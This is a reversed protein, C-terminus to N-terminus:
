FRTSGLGSMFPELATQSVAVYAADHLLCVRLCGSSVNRGAEVGLEM